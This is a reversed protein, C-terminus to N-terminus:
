PRHDGRVERGRRTGGPARCRRAGAVFSATTGFASPRMEDGFRFALWLMLLRLALGVVWFSWPIMAARRETLWEFHGAEHSATDSAQAVTELSM